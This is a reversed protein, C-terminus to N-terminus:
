LTGSIVWVKGLVLYFSPAGSDMFVFLDSSLRVFCCVLWTGSVRFRVVFCVCGSLWFGYPWSSREGCVYPVWCSGSGLLCSVVSLGPEPCFVFM